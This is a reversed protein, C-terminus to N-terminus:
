AAAPHTHVVLEEYATEIAEEARSRIRNASAVSRTLVLPRSGESVLRGLRRAVAETRGSGAAGLVLLAGEDHAVVAEQQETLGPVEHDRSDGMSKLSTCAHAAGPPREAPRAFVSALRAAHGGMFSAGPRPSAACAERTAPGVSSSHIAAQRLATSTCRRMKESCWPM